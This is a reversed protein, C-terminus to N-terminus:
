SSKKYTWKPVPVSTYTLTYYEDLLNYFTGIGYPNSILSEADGLTHDGFIHIETLICIDPTEEISIPRKIPDSEFYFANTHQQAKTIVFLPKTTTTKVNSPPTLLDSSKNYFARNAFFSHASHLTIREPILIGRKILQPALNQTIRVQPENTLAKDMTELIIIHLKANRPHKYVTADEICSKRFYNKCNLLDIIKDVTKISSSHIDILTISIKNTEFFSLLPLILPAGPGCGAYLIEIKEEPFIQFAKQIAQYIGKLFRVARLTDELCALAMQPSLAVGGQITSSNEDLINNKENVFTLLRGYDEFLSKSAAIEEELSSSVLLTDM